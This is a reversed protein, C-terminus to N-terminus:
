SKPTLPLDQRHTSHKEQTKWLADALMLGRANSVMLCLWKASM